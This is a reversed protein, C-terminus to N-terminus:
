NEIKKVLINEAEERRLMLRYGNIEIEIPDDLPAAKILSVKQGKVLGMEIYRKRAASDVILREVTCVEGPKCGNLNIWDVPTAIAKNNETCYIKNVEDKIKSAIDKNDDMFTMFSQLKKFVIQNMGHEMKCAVEESTDEPISLVDIFFSKLLTHRNTIIKAIEEGRDTLTIVSYPSYNVFKREALARLAITVSSRKVNLLNAIDKVRAVRNLNQLELIAELYDELSSSLDGKYKM